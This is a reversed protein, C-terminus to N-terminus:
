DINDIMEKLWQSSYILSCLWFEWKLGIQTNNEFIEKKSKKDIENQRGYM